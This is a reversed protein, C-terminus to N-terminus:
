GQIHRCIGLILRIYAAMPTVGSNHEGIFQSVCDCSPTWVGHESMEDGGPLPWGFANDGSRLGSGPKGAFLMRRDDRGGRHPLGRDLLRRTIEAGNDMNGPGVVDGAGQQVGNESLVPAKRQVTLDITM